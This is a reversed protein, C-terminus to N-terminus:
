ERKILTSTRYWSWKVFLRDGKEKLVTEIEYIKELNYVVMEQEYFSGIIPGSEDSIEYNPPLMELM